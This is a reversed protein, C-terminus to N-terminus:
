YINMTELSIFYKMNATEQSFQLCSCGTDFAGGWTILRLPTRSLPTKWLAMPDLDFLKSFLANM